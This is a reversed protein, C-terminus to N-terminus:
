ASDLRQEAQDEVAVYQFFLFTFCGHEFGVFVELTDCFVASEVGFFQHGFDCFFSREGVGVTDRVVDFLPEDAGMVDFGLPVELHLRCELFM